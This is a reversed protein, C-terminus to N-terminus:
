DANSVDRIQDQGLALFDRWVEDMQPLWKRLLRTKSADEDLGAEYRLYHYVFASVRANVVCHVWVNQGKLGNVVAFFLRLDGTTPNEFDVPIHFYAMGQSTVLSGENAIANDSSPLALNIVANYGASAIDSFQGATPQGSTGLWDTIQEYNYIAALPDDSNSM